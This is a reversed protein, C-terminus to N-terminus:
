LMLWDPLRVLNYNFEFLHYLNIFVAIIFFTLFYYRKKLKDIKLLISSKLSTVKIYRSLSFSIFSFNSATKISEGIFLVFVTKYYVNFKTEILPSCYFKYDVCIAIVKFLCITVYILCFISNIFLSNYMPNKENVISKSKLIKITLINLVLVILSLINNLYVSFILNSIKRIELWDYIEFYSQNERSISYIKCKELRQKFNCKFILYNLEGIDEICKTFKRDNIEDYYYQIMEYNKSTDEFYINFMFNHRFSYQILYLETCSCSSNHNPRLQPFVLKNHPFKEFFCIDENSYDYFTVHSFTQYIVLFISQKLFPEINRPSDNPDIPEFDFNLHELWKNNKAFLQRVHQTRIRILILQKFSKFLDDQIGNIIGNLDLIKIEKFIGRNFLNDDFYIRYILFNAQLVISELDNPNNMKLFTLINSGIFTSQIELLIMLKIQTNKFIYPCTKLSYKTKEKLTLFYLKNNTILNNWNSNNYCEQENQLKNNLYFEFNSQEIIWIIGKLTFDMFKIEKFPNSLLDFGKFNNLHVLNINDNTLLKLEKFHLSNDLIIKKNPKLGWDTLIIPKKCEDFSLQSLNNFDKLIVSKNYFTEKFPCDTKIFQIKLLIKIFLLLLLM